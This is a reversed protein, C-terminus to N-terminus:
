RQQSSEGPEVLCKSRFELRTTKSGLSFSIIRKGCFLFYSTAISQPGTLRVTLENSMQIPYKGTYCKGFWVGIFTIAVAMKPWHLRWKLLRTHFLYKLSFCVNQSYTDNPNTLNTRTKYRYIHCFNTCDGCLFINFLGFFRRAATVILAYVVQFLWFALWCFRAWGFWWGAGTAASPFGICIIICFVFAFTLSLDGWQRDGAWGTWIIICWTSFRCCAALSLSFADFIGFIDFSDFFRSFSWDASWCSTRSNRCLFPLIVIYTQRKGNERLKM